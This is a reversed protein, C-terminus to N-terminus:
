FNIFRLKFETSSYMEAMKGQMLQFQGVPRGFQKRQHVYPFSEDIVAQM